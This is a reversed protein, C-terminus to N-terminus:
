GCAGVRRSIANSPASVNGAQDVARITFRQTGGSNAGFADLSGFGPKSGRTDAFLVDGPVLGGNSLV